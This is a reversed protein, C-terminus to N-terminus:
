KKKHIGGSNTGFSVIALLCFYHGQLSPLTPSHKRRLLNGKQGVLAHSYTISGKQGVLILSLIHTYEVEM